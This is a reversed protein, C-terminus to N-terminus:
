LLFDKMIAFAVIFRREDHFRGYIISYQSAWFEFLRELALIMGGKSDNAITDYGLFKDSNTLLIIPLSQLVKLDARPHSPSIIAGEVRSQIM